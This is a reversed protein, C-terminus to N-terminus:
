LTDQTVRINNDVAQDTEQETESLVTCGQTTTTSTIISDTQTSRHQRTHQSGPQCSNIFINNAAPSSQNLREIRNTLEVIKDSLCKLSTESTDHPVSRASVYESAHGVQTELHMIRKNRIDLSETLRRLEAEQQSITSRCASLATKHFELEPDCSNINSSRQRTSTTPFRPQKHRHNTSDRAQDAASGTGPNDTVSTHISISQLPTDTAPTPQLPTSSTETFHTLRAPSNGQQSQVPPAGPGPLQASDPPQVPVCVPSLLSPQVSSHPFFTLATHNLATANPEGQSDHPPVQLPAESRPVTGMICSPCYWPSRKWYRTADKRDTCRKHFMLHCNSCSLEQDKPHTASPNVQENCKSCCFTASQASQRIDTNVADIADKNQATHATALPELFNKVLWVPSCTGCSMVSSGQALLTCSTHYFHLVVKNKVNPSISETMFLVIKTCVKRGSLDTRDSIDECVILTSLIDTQWGINIAQLAPKIATLYVGSNCDVSVSTPHKVGQTTQPNSLKIEFEPRSTNEILRKAQNVHNLRYLLQMDQQRFGSASVGAPTITPAELSRNTVHPPQTPTISTTDSMLSDNGDVQQIDSIELTSPTPPLPDSYGTHNQLHINLDRMNYCTFDCKTCHLMSATHQSLDQNSMDFYEDQDWYYVETSATMVFDPSLNPLQHQDHTLMTHSNLDELSTCTIGSINCELNSKPGHINVAHRELNATSDCIESSQFCHYQQEGLTANNYQNWTIPPICRSYNPSSSCAETNNVHDLMHINLDRQKRFIENCLECPIRTNDVHNDTIHVQLHAEDVFTQGCSWCGPLRTDHHPICQHYYLDRVSQFITLCSSCHFHASYDHTAPNDVPLNPNKVCVSCNKFISSSKINPIQNKLSSQLHEEFYKSFTDLKLEIEAVKENHSTSHDNIANAIIAIGDTFGKTVIEIKDNTLEKAYSREIKANERIQNNCYEMLLGVLAEGSLPAKPDTCPPVSAMNYLSPDNTQDYVTKLGPSLPHHNAYVLIFLQTFMCLKLLM